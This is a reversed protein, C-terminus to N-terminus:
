ANFPTTKDAANSNSTTPYYGKGIAYTKGDPGQVWVQEFTVVLFHSDANNNKQHFEQGWSTM